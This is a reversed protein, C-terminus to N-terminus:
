SSKTVCATWTESFSSVTVVVGGLGASTGAPVLGTGAGAWHNPVFGSRTGHWVSLECCEDFDAEMLQTLM